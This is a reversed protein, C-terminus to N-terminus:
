HQSLTVVSLCQCQHWPHWSLTEVSLHCQYKYYLNLKNPCFPHNWLIQSLKKFFRWKQGFFYVNNKGSQFDDIKTFNTKLFFFFKIPMLKQQFKFFKWYNSNYKDVALISLFNALSYTWITWIWHWRLTTLVIVSFLAPTKWHRLTM